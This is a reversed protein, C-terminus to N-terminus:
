RPLSLASDILAFFSPHLLSYNVMCIAALSPAISGTGSAWIRRM